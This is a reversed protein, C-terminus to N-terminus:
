SGGEDRGAVQHLGEAATAAQEGEEGGLQMMGAPSNQASRSELAEQTRTEPRWDIFTLPNSPDTQADLLPFWELYGQYKPRQRISDTSRNGRVIEEGTKADSLPKDAFYANNLDALQRWTFEGRAAIIMGFILNEEDERWPTLKEQTKRAPKGSGTAMLEEPHDGALRSSEAVNAAKPSKKRRKSSGEVEEDSDVTERDRNKGVMAGGKALYQDLTIQRASEESLLASYRATEVPEEDNQEMADEGSEDEDQVLKLYMKCAAEVIERVVEVSLPDVKKLQATM